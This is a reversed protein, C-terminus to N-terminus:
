SYLRRRVGGHNLCAHPHGGRHSYTSDMCEIVYGNAGIWFDPVCDFYRCFHSAPKYILDAPRCFDYGFPNPPAGCTPQFEYAGRDDYARPGVGTNPTSPDDVRPNGDADITSEGSAGSNASDIAPSGEQLRFNSNASSIWKPDAQLGHGEQGTASFLAAPSSYSTNNWVYLSGATTLYVLNYDMTTTAPASDFIGIDGTRRNCSIGNYAPYVANDVSINNMVTYNGSAGEVNIGDTCNHYVTNGILRGGTVNYDDIGHDGNNYSVNEVALGNNAGSFFQLGSDENDHVVNGLLTNGSSGTDIVNIGNANRQWGEANRSAENFSVTNNASGASLIIGFDSNNDSTNHTVLSSSTGSLSIGAATLGKVRQGSGTVANNSITIHSSSSVGIGYSSTSTITFGNIVIYSRGSITFADVGGSITVGPSATFTIPSGSAGTNAPNVSTGTYTGGNVAVTDGAQALQAAKDITCYPQSPSGSGGDTCSSSSGDVYLTGSAALVV